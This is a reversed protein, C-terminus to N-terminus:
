QIYEAQDKKDRVQEVPVQNAIVKSAVFCEAEFAAYGHAACVKGLLRSYGFGFLLGL